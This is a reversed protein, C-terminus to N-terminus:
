KKWKNKEYDLDNLWTRCSKDPNTLGYILGEMNNSMDKKSDELAKGFTTKRDCWGTLKCAIDKAEKLIGWGLSYAAGDLGRQGNLCMGLRHAYNDYGDKKIADMEKKSAHLTGLAEGAKVPPLESFADKLIKIYAQQKPNMERHKKDACFADLREIFAKKQREDPAPTTAGIPAYLANVLDEQKKRKKSEEYDDYIKEIEQRLNDM